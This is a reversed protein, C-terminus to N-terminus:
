EDREAMVWISGAASDVMVVVVIDAAAILTADVSVSDTVFVSTTWDISCNLEVWIAELVVM